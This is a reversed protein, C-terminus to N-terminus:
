WTYVYEIKSHLFNESAMFKTVDGCWKFDNVFVIWENEINIELLIEEVL